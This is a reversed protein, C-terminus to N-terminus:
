QALSEIRVVTQGERIQGYTHGGTTQGGAEFARVGIGFTYFQGQGWTIFTPDNERRWKLTISYCGAPAADGPEWELEFVSGLRFAWDAGFRSCVQFDTWELGTVAAGTDARSVSVLLELKSDTDTTITEGSVAEVILRAM